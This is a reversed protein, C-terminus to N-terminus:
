EILESLFDGWWLDMTACFDVEPSLRIEEEALVEEGLEQLDDLGAWYSCSVDDIRKFYAGIGEGRPSM